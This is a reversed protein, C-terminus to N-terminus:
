RAGKCDRSCGVKLGNGKIKAVKRKSGGPGANVSWLSELEEEKREKQPSRGSALTRLRFTQMHLLTCTHIDLFILGEIYTDTMLIM